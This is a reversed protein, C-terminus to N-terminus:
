ISPNLGGSITGSAPPLFSPTAPEDPERQRSYSQVRSMKRRVERLENSAEPAPLPARLWVYLGLAGAFVTTAVLLTRLGFRLSWPIWLIGAVLAALAVPYYHPVALFWYDYPVSQGLISQRMGGYRAFSINLRSYDPRIAQAYIYTDADVKESAWDCPEVAHWEHWSSGTQEFTLNGNLSSASIQLEPPKLTLVDLWWYSRAWLLVMLACVILCIATFAIRLYRLFRRM